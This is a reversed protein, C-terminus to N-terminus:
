IKPDIIQSNWAGYIRVQGGNQFGAAWLSDIFAGLMRVCGHSAPFPYVWADYESGHVAQGKNFFIPRYMWGDPYAISEYWRNVSWTTQYNGLDTEMGPKGTSALTIEFDIENISQIISGGLNMPSAGKVSKVWVASQCTRNVNLGIIFDKPLVMNEQAVMAYREDLTPLSRSVDRGTLERWICFAQRSRDGFKGDIKGIPIKLNNLAIQIEENTPPLPKATPSQSPEPAISKTPSPVIVPVPKHNLSTDFYFYEYGFKAFSLLTILIGVLWIRKM